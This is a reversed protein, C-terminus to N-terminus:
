LSTVHVHPGLDNAVRSNARCSIRALLLSIIWCTGTFRDQRIIIFVNHADLVFVNYLWFLIFCISVRAYKDSRSYFHTNVIVQAVLHFFHYYSPFSAHRASTRLFPYWEGDRRHALVRHRWWTSVTEANSARQSPFGGTMSPNRECLGAIRLKSTEKSIFFRNLLCELGDCENHRRKQISM